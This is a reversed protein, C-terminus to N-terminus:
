KPEVRTGAAAEEVSKRSGARVLTYYAFLSATLHEAASFNHLRQFVFPETFWPQSARREETARLDGSAPRM